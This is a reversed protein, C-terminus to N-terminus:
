TIKISYKKEFGDKTMVGLNEDLNINEFKKMILESLNFYIVKIKKTQSQFYITLIAGLGSSDFIKVECLDIGIISPNLLLQNEWCSKLEIGTNSNLTGTLKMVIIENKKYKKTEIILSNNNEM